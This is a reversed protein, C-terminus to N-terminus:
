QQVKRRANEVYCERFFQLTRRIAERTGIEVRGAMYECDDLTAIFYGSRISIRPRQRLREISSGMLDVGHHQEFRRRGLRHLSDNGTRHHRNCLPGTDLDSAKQSLGHPGFHAAEVIRAQCDPVLCPLTRIFALYAPSRTPKM